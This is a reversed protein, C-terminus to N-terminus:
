DGAQRVVQAGCAALKAELGEFGRDLHYVRNVLTEGEAALGAIVLSVSARLDTAMVPAGLLKDVGTVIAESGHVAIQAGLRALEPAHMFRNEFITERIRSRGDALCLLAMTQAQLDTPFGPFPETEFDVPTLRGRADPRLRIPNLELTTMGYDHFLDWLNPLHQVLPSIIAKPANLESLANAVIFAKLGTLPNFPVVAIKEKPLEEIDVGGHHTLTMTPARFRTNDTLSFYVEHDAPVGAEFTVGNSKARQHGHHHECFYLREKEALATKLDTAKGVLGAKGKKGVGGKFVPKIFVLGHKVILAKLESESADAGLIEPTPFGALKLLRAGYLMGTLNM